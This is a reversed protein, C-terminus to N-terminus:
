VQDVDDEDTNLQSNPISPSEYADNPGSGQSSGYLEKIVVEAAEQTVPVRLEGKNFILFYSSGDNSFDQESGLGTLIMTKM